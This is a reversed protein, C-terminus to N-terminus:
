LCSQQLEMESIKLTKIWSDHLSVMKKYYSKYGMYIM